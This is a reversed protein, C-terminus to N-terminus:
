LSVVDGTISNYSFGLLPSDNLTFTCAEPANYTSQYDASNDSAAKNSNESLLAAFVSLCDANNNLSLVTDAGSYSQAPYGDDNFDIETGNAIEVDNRRTLSTPSGLVLYRAHALDVGSKFAAMTSKVSKERADDQLNIFKPLATAALIGLIVIVVVLEILTFGQVIRKKM